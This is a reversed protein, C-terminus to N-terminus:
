FSMRNLIDDVQTKVDKRIDAGCLMDSIAWAAKHLDESSPTKHSGVANVFRVLDDRTYNSM